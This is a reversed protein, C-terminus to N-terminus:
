QEALVLEGLRPPEAANITRGLPDSPALAATWLNAEIAPGGRHTRGAAIVMVLSAALALIGVAPAHGGIWPIAGARARAGEEIRRALSEWYAPEHPLGQPREPM